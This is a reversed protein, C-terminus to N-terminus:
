QSFQGGLSNDSKVVYLGIRKRCMAAVGNEAYELWHTKPVYLGASKRCKRAVQLAEASM